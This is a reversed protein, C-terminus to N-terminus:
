GSARGGIGARGGGALDHEPPQAPRPLRHGAGRRADGGGDGGERARLARPRPDRHAGDGGAQAGHHGARHRRLLPRRRARVHGHHDGPARDRRGQAPGGARRRGLAPPARRHGPLAERRHPPERRLDSPMLSSLPRGILEDPEYGFVRHTAPNAFVITDDHRMVLIAAAANEALARFQEESERMERERRHRETADTFSVVAGRVEDGVIIPAASYDALFSTGDKRWLLEGAILVRERTAMVRTMPCESEPYPSGDARTHHVLAHVARDWCRRRPSASCRPPRPTSSPRGGPATSEGCARPPPSSSPRRRRASASPRSSSSSAGSPPPSSIAWPRPM